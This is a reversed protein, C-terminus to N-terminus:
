VIVDEFEVSLTSVYDHKWVVVLPVDRRLIVLVSEVPDAFGEIREDRHDLFLASDCALKTIFILELM